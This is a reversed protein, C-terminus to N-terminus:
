PGLTRLQHDLRHQDNVRAYLHQEYLEGIRQSRTYAKSFLLRLNARFDTLIRCRLNQQVGDLFDTQLRRVLEVYNERSLAHDAQSELLRKLELYYHAGVISGGSVTSLVDVGRLVDMEALRALVGLHFFSARFGGGSLALGMRGHYCSLAPVQAAPFLARLARWSAPWHEVDTGEAPSRHGHLRAIAALQRFTTEQEWEKRGLRTAILLWKEAQPYDRLGFYVEALTVAFWDQKALAPEDQYRAELFARIDERLAQAQQAHANAALVSSGSRAQARQTRDSLVDLLYAANM